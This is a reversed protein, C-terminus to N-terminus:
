RMKRLKPLVGPPSSPAPPAAPPTPTSARVVAQDMAPDAPPAAGQKKSARREEKAGVIALKRLDGIGHDRIETALAYGHEADGKQGKDIANGRADVPAGTAAVNAASVALKVSNEVQETQRAVSLRGALRPAAAAVAGATGSLFDEYDKTVPRGIHEAIVEKAAFLRESADVATVTADALCNVQGKKLGRWSKDEYRGPHFVRECWRWM